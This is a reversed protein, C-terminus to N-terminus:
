AESETEAPIESDTVPASLQSTEASTFDGLQINEIMAACGYDEVVYDIKLSEYNEIRDRRAVEEIHRRHSSDMIYISLNDLRTILLANDPFYPVRVAPLNGIRKQSVIIDGALKESNEQSKNILPFYKDSLMKRGCVVVLNPDESHWADLLFDTANIVAADINEFDGNKGIRVTASVVAGDDDTVKDMVREAAENRMKQLWGVAIDQLMPYKSRDSDAARSVGNFGAMIYDLAQRKAIADRLRIQFDQYRAWLDLTNYRIHFDFNVQECKYKRSTLSQFDATKREKDGDTNTTSAISGTVGLGIKEGEQEDVPVMNIRTLFESSEQVTTILTQTVSPEVSFKHSLDEVDVGNLEAVRSLYANFKFRTNKRM